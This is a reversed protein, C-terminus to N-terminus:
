YVAYEQKALARQLLPDDEFNTGHEKSYRLVEEIIEDAEKSTHNNKMLQKKIEQITMKELGKKM